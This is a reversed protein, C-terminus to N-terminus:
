VPTLYIGALVRRCDIKVERAQTCLSSNILTQLQSAQDITGPPLSWSTWAVRSNAFVIVTLPVLLSIEYALSWETSSFKTYVCLQFAYARVFFALKRNKSMNPPSSFFKKNVWPTFSFMLHLFLLRRFKIRKSLSLCTWKGGKISKSM